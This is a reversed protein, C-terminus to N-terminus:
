SGSTRNRQKLRGINLGYTNLCSGALVLVAAVLVNWTLSVGNLMLAIVPSLLPKIFFALAAISPGGVELAKFYAWYGIGTVVVGLYVLPGVTSMNLGTVVNDGIGLLVLLLVLDGCLFSLTMQVIAPFSRLHKKSFVTYVSFSVAALLALGIAPLSEGMSTDLCFCVGVISLLLAAYQIKKLPEKLIIAAVLITFVSNASFVIAVNAPSNAMQVALQLVIMSFCVLFVGLVTMLGIDKVSLKIKEKRIKALGFPLLFTAGILFRWFTIVFASVEGSIIKSVPELTSFVVATLLAYIIGMKM